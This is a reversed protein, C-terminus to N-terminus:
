EAVVASQVMQRFQDRPNTGGTSQTFVLVILGRSPDMWAHTGDSGGHRFGGAADVAWGLGYFQTPLTASKSHIAQTHNATANAVSVETLIRKGNYIGGNLFMQCFRAYDRTSSIMGGSARVIPWDPGDGPSWSTNWSGNTRRYVRAMREQPAHTEYNCSDDMGLPEYIRERLYKELSMGSAIEILRGLTNYGPNSYSYTSGPVEDAGIAGFRDVEARLSPCDPNKDSRQTLPRLFIVPIRLGGTHSLLHSIKIYGARYNDWSPIHERVNDNLALKGQEVLQLIATAVVPKTNSAMKFLTDKEMSQSEERNRWGIAKHLVITGRRAVLVVAGRLEDQEVAAEFLRWAEQLKRSSMGVEDASGVCLTRDDALVVAAAASVAVFVWAFWHNQIM